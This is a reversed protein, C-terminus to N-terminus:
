HTQWWSNKVIYILAVVRLVNVGNSDIRTFRNGYYEHSKDVPSDEAPHESIVTVRHGMEGLSESLESYLRAASDIIPPYSVVLIMINM